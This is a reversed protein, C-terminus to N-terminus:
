QSSNEVKSILFAVQVTKREVREKRSRMAQAEGVGFGM